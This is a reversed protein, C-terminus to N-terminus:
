LTAPAPLRLGERVAWSAVVDLEAPRPRRNAVGRAQRVARDVPDVEITLVRRRGAGTEVRMSWISTLRRACRDAYAAV